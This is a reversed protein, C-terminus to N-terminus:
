LNTNMGEKSIRRIFDDCMLSTETTTSSEQWVREHAIFDKVTDMARTAKFVLEPSFFGPKRQLIVIMILRSIDSIAETIGKEISRVMLHDSKLRKPIGCIAVKAAEELADFYYWLSEEKETGFEDDNGPTIANVAWIDSNDSNKLVLIQYCKKMICLVSVLMIHPCLIGCKSTMSCIKRRLDLTESIGSEFRSQDDKSHGIQFDSAGEDFESLTKLSIETIVPVLDLFKSMFRFVELIFDPHTEEVIASEVLGREAKSQATKSLKSIKGEITNSKKKVTAMTGTTKQLENRLFAIELEQKLLREQVGSNTTSEIIDAENNTAIGEAVSMSVPKAKLAAFVLASTACSADIMKFKPHAIQKLLRQLIHENQIIAAKQNSIKEEMDEISAELQKLKVDSPLLVEHTDRSAEDLAFAFKKSEKRWMELEKNMSDVDEQMYDMTKALPNTSRCLTQISERLAEIERKAASKEKPKEPADGKENKDGEGKAKESGDLLKRVLGGHIEDDSRKVSRSDRVDEKSEGSDDNGIIVYDEDESDNEGNKAGDQIIAPAIPIEDVATFEAGKFKPPPARATTPRERRKVAPTPMLSLKKNENDEVDSNVPSQDNAPKSDPEKELRQSRQRDHDRERERDDPLQQPLSGDLVRQNSANGKESLVKGGNSSATTDKAESKPPAPPQQAERPRASQGRDKQAPAGSPGATTKKFHEGALVRNVANSTDAKKLVVKAILQLFANTDEPDMGAVIKLPNAKIDVNTVMGICDIMKLLYAVKADKEKVNDSNMETESYLGKCFSTPSNSEIAIASTVRIIESFIDHLYRFPPKSLLKANLPPKKIVRGLLDITKKISEELASSLATTVPATAAAAPDGM